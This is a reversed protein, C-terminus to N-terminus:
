FSPIRLTKKELSFTRVRRLSNVLPSQANTPLAPRSISVRTGDPNMRFTVRAPTRRNTTHADNENTQITTPLERIEDQTFVSDTRTETTVIPSAPGINSDSNVHTPPSQTAPASPRYENAANNSISRDVIPRGQRFRGPKLPIKPLRAAMVETNTRRATTPTYELPSDSSADIPEVAQEIDMVIDDPIPSWPNHLPKTSTTQSSPNDTSTTPNEEVTPM